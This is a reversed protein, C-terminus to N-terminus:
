NKASQLQVVFVLMHLRRLTAWPTLSRLHSNACPHSAHSCTWTCVKLKRLSCMGRSKIQMIMNVQLKKRSKEKKKKDARHSDRTYIHFRDQAQQINKMSEFEHDSEKSELEAAELSLAQVADASAERARAAKMESTKTRSRQDM